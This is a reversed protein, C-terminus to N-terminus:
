SAHNSKPQIQPVPEFATRDERRGVVEIRAPNIAVETAVPAATQMAMAPYNKASGAAMQAPVVIFLGFTIAAMAIAAVGVATRPISTKYHNM